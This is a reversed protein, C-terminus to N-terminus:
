NAVRGCQILNAYLAEMQDLMLELTFLEGARRRGERGMASCLSPNSLLQDLATALAGANGPPCLLGSVGGAIVEDIGPIDSGVVPKGLFGAEILTLGLGEKRVSPLIMIDCANMLSVVDARYGLFLVNDAVGLQRAQGALREKDSGEGIFLCRLKPYSVVLKAIAAILFEQGKKPSLHAVCGILPVDGSIGLSGRTTAADEVGSFRDPEIGNYVTTVRCDSVGQALLHQRVGESCAVIRDAIQYFIKTNLAHVHALVPVGTLKGAVGGWLGATSLHTHIIDAGIERAIKAIRFPALFNLKGSIRLPRIALGRREADAVMAEHPKCLTLVRHGRRQLGEALTLCVREAGSFRRQTIVQLITLPLQTM